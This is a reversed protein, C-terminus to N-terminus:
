FDGFTLYKLVWKNKFFKWVGKQLDTCILQFLKKKKKIKKWHSPAKKLVAFGSIQADNKEM